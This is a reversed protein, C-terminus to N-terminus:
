APPAPWFYECVMMTPRLERRQCAACGGVWRPLSERSVRIARLYPNKPRNIAESASPNRSEVNLGPTLAPGQGYM